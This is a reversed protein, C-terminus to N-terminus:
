YSKQGYTLLTVKVTDLPQGVIVAAAGGLCGATFDVALSPSDRHGGSVTM